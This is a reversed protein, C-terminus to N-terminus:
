NSLVKDLRKVSDMNINHCGIKLTGNLSIVTYGEINYGKIDKSHDRLSKRM